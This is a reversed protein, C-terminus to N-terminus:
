REFDYEEKLIRKLIQRGRRLDSRVTSENRGLINSIEASSYEEYYFLHIVERYKVPLQKVAEWVFALDNDESEKLNDDLEDAERLKNYRIKNKSSNAAVRMLWAKESQTNCFSPSSKIYQIMTDQLIDEADAMNHLYSYALRLIHNGYQEFLYKAQKSSSIKDPITPIEAGKDSFRVAKALSALTALFYMGVSLCRSKPLVSIYAM